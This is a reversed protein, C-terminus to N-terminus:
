ECHEALKQRIEPTESFYRVYSKAVLCAEDHGDLEALSNAVYLFEEVDIRYISNANRCFDTM